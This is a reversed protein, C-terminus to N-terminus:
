RAAERHATSEAEPSTRRRWSLLLPWLAIAGPLILLRFGLGSGRAAPDSLALRRSVFEIAVPIGVIWYLLVAGLLATALSEIM